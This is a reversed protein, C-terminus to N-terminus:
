LRVGSAAIAQRFTSSRLMATLKAAYDPDTAYGSNGIGEVYGQADAGAAIAGRYRPSTGVLKAFDGVSELVSGYARFATRRPTAVGDSFEVTAATARAGAWAEDAKIGFLNHSSVGNATRPMRRGWGSELAAQALMGLPNVGLTAAAARIAPL